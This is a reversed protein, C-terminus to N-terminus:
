VKRRLDELRIATLTNKDKIYFLQEGKLFFSDPTPALTNENLLDSFIVGKGEAGVVKLCNKLLPEQSARVGSKEHYNFFLLDGHQVYEIKGVVRRFDCHSRILQALQDYNAVEEAFVEPFVFDRHSIEEEPRRLSMEGGDESFEREIEGTACNLEYYIRKEFLDKTAYIKGKAPFLPQLEDNRWLLKGTELDLAIIKFHQPLDPQVYEHLYVIGEYITEIGIWWREDLTLGSWLVEGTLEKLCFFSVTKKAQDRDEGVIKGSESFLIRWIIGTTKFQWAPKLKGDRFLSFWKM